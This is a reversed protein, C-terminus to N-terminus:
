PLYDAFYDMPDFRYDEDSPEYAARGREGKIGWSKWDIVDDSLDELDDQSEFCKAWLDLDGNIVVQKPILMQMQYSLSFRLAKEPNNLELRKSTSKIYNLIDREEQAWLEQEKLGAPTSKQYAQPIWIKGIEKLKQKNAKIGCYWDGKEGLFMEPDNVLYVGAGLKDLSPQAGKMYQLRNNQNIRRAQAAPLKAYGIFSPKRWWLLRDGMRAQAEDFFFSLALVVALISKSRLM